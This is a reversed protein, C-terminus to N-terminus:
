LRVSRAASRSHARFLVVRTRHAPRRRLFEHPRTRRVRCGPRASCDGRSSQVDMRNRHWRSPRHRADARQPFSAARAGATPSLAQEAEVSIESTRMGAITGTAGPSSPALRPASIRSTWSRVERLRHVDRSNRCNPTPARAAKRATTPRPILRCASTVRRISREARHAPQPLAAARAPHRALGCEM